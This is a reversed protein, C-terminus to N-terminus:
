APRWDFHDGFRTSHAVNQRMEAHLQPIIVQRVLQEGVRGVGIEVAAEVNAVLGAFLALGKGGLGDALRLQWLTVEAGKLGADAARIAAAVSQTEVVGLADAEAPERGGALGSVVGPHVDPLFVVDLLTAQGVERGIAVAEEVSAVDGTVLVLYHGPQVTGAQIQEIPARKVMADGAQIGAAISNFELLALAPYAM